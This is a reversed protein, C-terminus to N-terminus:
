QLKIEGSECYKGNFPHPCLCEIRNTIDNTYCQGGNLCQCDNIECKDGKTTAPCLCEYENQNRNNTICFEQNLCSSCETLLINFICVADLERNENEIEWQGSSSMKVGNLSTNQSLNTWKDTWNYQNINREGTITKFVHHLIYGNDSKFIGEQESDSIGLWLGADGFHTKYFENEQPSRPIPLHVSDGYNSCANRADNRQMKDLHKYFISGWEHEVYIFDDTLNFSRPNHTTKLTNIEDLDEM